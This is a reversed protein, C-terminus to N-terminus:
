YGPNQVLNDNQDIASQPIPMKYSFETFPSRQAHRGSDKSYVANMVEEVKDLRCLDFWRQGEMALEMRREDLLANIMAEKSGKKAADLPAIGARSRIRDIIAAGDALQGNQILAEAKLLLIDALRLKILSSFESRCKNMFAYNDAPYYNSWTCSYFAVAESYRKTDGNANFCASLDRSPTVWKAWTFNTGPNDVPNGFMWSCWNGAGTFFHAELISESTNRVPEFSDGVAWLTSYDDVLAYGDAVCKDAYEIVKAYNRLPKEAYIKALMAHAVGRSLRTKDGNNAPAYQEAYLLDAEIAKYAEEETNQAPFYANYMEGVNESTINGATTTIIPINGWLRVMDFWVLARFLRAQAEYVHQEAESVSGDAVKDINTILKTAVAADELFRTWDRLLVSNSGEISNDEYPVVEAGTTGAYANDSHAESILLMDVYWHEQRDEFLKYMATLYSDVDSKTSFVIEEQEETIGETVDSYTDLPDQNLSCSPAMALCGLAAAYGFIRNYKM